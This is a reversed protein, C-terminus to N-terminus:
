QKNNKLAEEEKKKFFLRSIITYVSRYTLPTPRTVKGALLKLM